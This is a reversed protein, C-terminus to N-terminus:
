MRALFSILILTPIVLCKVVLAKGGVIMTHMEEGACQIRRGDISMIQQKGYVRSMLNQAVVSQSCGTDVLALASRGDMEIRLMVQAM